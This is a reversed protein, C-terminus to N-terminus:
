RGAPKQGPKKLSQATFMEPPITYNVRIESFQFTIREDNVKHQYVAVPLWTARNFTLRLERFTRCATDSVPSLILTVRSETQRGLKILFHERLRATSTFGALLTDTKLDDVLHHTEPEFGPKQFIVQAENMIMVSADPEKYDFRLLLVPPQEAQAAEKKVFYLVGSAVDKEDLAKSVTTQVFKAQFTRIKQASADIKTLVTDVAEQPPAAALVGSWM